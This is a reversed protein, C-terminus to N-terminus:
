DAGLAGVVETGAQEEAAFFLAAAYAHDAVLDEFADAVGDVAAAGEDDGGHCLAVWFVDGVDFGAILHGELVEEVAGGEDFM